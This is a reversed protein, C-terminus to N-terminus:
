GGIRYYGRGNMDTLKAHPTSDTPHPVSLRLEDVQTGDDNTYRAREVRMGFAGRPDGVSIMVTIADNTSDDFNVSVSNAWSLPVAEPVHQGNIGGPEGYPACPCDPSEDVDSLWMTPEGSGSGDYLASDCNVCEWQRGGDNDGNTRMEGALPIHLGGLDNVGVDTSGDTCVADDANISITTYIAM